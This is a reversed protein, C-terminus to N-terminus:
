LLKPAVSQRELMLNRTWVVVMHVNQRYLSRGIYTAAAVHMRLQVYLYHFRISVAHALVKAPSFFPNGNISEM